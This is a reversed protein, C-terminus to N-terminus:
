SGKVTDELVIQNRGHEKGYYLLEDARKATEEFNENKQQRAIGFTMSIHFENEKGYFVKAFIKESIKKMEEYAEEDNGRYVMLFEEGGWRAIIGKEKLEEELVSAVYCLVEDGKDHGYTDNVKKFYDIDAMVVSLGGNEWCEEVSTMCARRNLLKTLPDRTIMEELSHSVSIAYEGMDALEDRRNLVVDPMKQNFKGKALRALFNKIHHVTEVIKQSSLYCIFGALLVVFICIIVNGQLMFGMLLDVSEVSKGAFSMGIVEDTLSRIPVYYGFYEANGVKVHESFYEEGEELVIQRIEDSVKTGTLREGNEDVVTTLCRQDGICISVDAGTDNKVDDLLRYDSTFETEGKMIKDDVVAFDGADLMNYSSIINHAIGSLNKKVEFVMADKVSERSYITLVLGLLLIPIVSLEVITIALSRRRKNKQETM